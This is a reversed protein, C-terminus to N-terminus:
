CSTTFALAIAMEEPLDETKIAASRKQEGIPAPSIGSRTQSGASQQVHTDNSYKGNAVPLSDGL